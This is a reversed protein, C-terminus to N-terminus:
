MKLGGTDLSIGSTQSLYQDSVKKSPEYTLLVAQAPMEMREISPNSLTWPVLALGMQGPGVPQFQLIHPRRVNYTVVKDNVITTNLVEALVEEGTTMKFAKVDSM